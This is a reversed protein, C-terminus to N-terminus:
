FPIDDSTPVSERGYAHDRLAALRNAAAIAARERYVRELAIADPSRLDATGTRAERRAQLKLSLGPGEHGHAVNNAERALTQSEPHAELEADSLHGHDHALTADELTAPIM